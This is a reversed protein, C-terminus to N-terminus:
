GTIDRSLVNLEQERVYEEILDDADYGHASVHHELADYSTAYDGWGCANVKAGGGEKESAQQGSFGAALVQFQEPNTVEFVVSFFRKGAKIESM